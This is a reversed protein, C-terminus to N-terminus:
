MSRLYRGFLFHFSGANVVKFAFASETILAEVDMTVSVDLVLEVWVLYGFNGFSGSTDGVLTM